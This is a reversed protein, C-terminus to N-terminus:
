ILGRKKFITYAIDEDGFWFEIPKNFHIYRSNILSKLHNLNYAVTVEEKNTLRMSSNWTVVGILQGYNNIRLVEVFIPRNSM